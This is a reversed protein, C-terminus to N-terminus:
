RGDWDRRRSIPALAVDVQWGEHKAGLIHLAVTDM